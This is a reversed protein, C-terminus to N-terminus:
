RGLNQAYSVLGASIYRGYGDLKDQQAMRAPNNFVDATGVCLLMVSAAAILYNRIITTNDTTSTTFM